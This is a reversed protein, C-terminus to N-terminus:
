RMKPSSVPHSMPASVPPTRPGCSPRARTVCIADKELAKNMIREMEPSLNPILRVAPVRRLQDYIAMGSVISVEPPVM